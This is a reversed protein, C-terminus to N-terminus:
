DEIGDPDRRLKLKRNLEEYDTSEMVKGLASELNTLYNLAQQAPFESKSETMSRIESATLKYRKTAKEIAEDHPFGELELEDIFREIDGVTAEENSSDNDREYDEYADFALGIDFGNFMEPIKEIIEGKTFGQDLMTVIFEEVDDQLSGERLSTSESQEDMYSHDMYAVKANYLLRFEKGDSTSYDITTTDIPEYYEESVLTAARDLESKVRPVENRDFYQTRMGRNIFTKGPGILNRLQKKLNQRTLKM